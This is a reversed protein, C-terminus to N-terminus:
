QTQTEAGIAAKIAAIDAQVAVIACNLKTVAETDAKVAALAEASAQLTLAAIITDLKTNVSM